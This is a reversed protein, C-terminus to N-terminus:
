SLETKQLFLVLLFSSTTCSVDAILMINIYYKVWCSIFVGQMEPVAQQKKRWSISFQRAACALLLSQRLCMSLLQCLQAVAIYSESALRQFHSNVLM